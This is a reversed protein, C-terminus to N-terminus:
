AVVSAFTSYSSISARQSRSRQSLATRYQEQHPILALDCEDIHLHATFLLDSLLKIYFTLCTLQMICHIAIFQYQMIQHHNTEVCHNM